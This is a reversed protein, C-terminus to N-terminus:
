GDSRSPAGRRTRSVLRRGVVTLLWAVVVLAALPVLVALASLAVAGLLEGTAVVPNGLGGTLTTSGLRLLVTAMQVLGAAGGGAVVAIAWRALPPLDTVVAATAIMGATVAVPTALTDLANDLWPVYYAAVELVAAVALALLATESGIWEMGPALQIYGARSAASVALLPIFARLGSAASLGIGVAIALPADAM